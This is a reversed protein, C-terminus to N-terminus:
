PWDQVHSGGSGEVIRGLVGDGKFRTQFEAKLYRSLRHYGRDKSTGCTGVRLVVCREIVCCVDM